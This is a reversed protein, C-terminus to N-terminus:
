IVTATARAETTVKYTVTLNQFGSKKFTFYVIPNYTAFEVDLFSPEDADAYSYFDYGYEVNLTPAFDASDTFSGRKTETNAADAGSDTGSVPQTLTISVTDPLENLDFIKTLATAGTGGLSSNFGNQNGEVWIQANGTVTKVWIDCYSNASSTVNPPATSVTQYKAVSNAVVTPAQAGNYTPAFDPDQAVASMVGKMLFSGQPLPEGTADVWGIMADVAGTQATTGTAILKSM